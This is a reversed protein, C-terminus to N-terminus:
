LWNEFVWIFVLDSDWTLEAWWLTYWHWNFVKETDTTGKAWVDTHMTSLGRHLTSLPRIVSLGSWVSAQARQPRLVSLGSWVSPQGCWPWHVSLGSCFTCSICFLYKISVSVGEILHASNVHSESRTNVQTNFQNYNVLCLNWLFSPILARFTCKCCHVCIFIAWIVTHLCLGSWM